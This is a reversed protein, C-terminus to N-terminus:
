SILEQLSLEEQSNAVRYGVYPVIMREPNIGFKNGGDPLTDALESDFFDVIDAALNKTAVPTIIGGPANEEDDSCAVFAVAALLIFLYKKM